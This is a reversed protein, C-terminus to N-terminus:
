AAGGKVLRYTTVGDAVLQDSAPGSIRESHGIYLIGGPNLMPVFRSWIQQQTKEEFYIAVNRCFIADFKGKMPWNGILNLERFAVISALKADVKCTGRNQSHFWKRRQDEPVVSVVDESYEGSIAAAIMHSDIDTALIRINLSDADPLQSFISMAISYPEQGNSCASSWVRMRGGKRLSPTLREVVNRKFHEFHHPERFFRTVNTTLAAIMQRREEDGSNSAILTCYDQFSEIGLARLRKTLRSYVFPAKADSLYIGAEANLIRAIQRFDGDTFKFASMADPQSERASPNM